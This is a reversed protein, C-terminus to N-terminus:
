IMKGGHELPRANHMGTPLHRRLDCEALSTTQCPMGERDSRAFTKAAVSMKECHFFLRCPRAWRTPPAM